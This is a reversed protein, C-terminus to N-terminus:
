QIRIDFRGDTVSISRSPEFIDGMNFQFTGSIIKNSLDFRTIIVSGTQSSSTLYEEKPTLIRKVYYAYNAVSSPYSTNANLIYTGPGTIGKISIEFETETPSSSIDMANIYLDTSGLVRAELIDNSPIGAFGKPIWNVGNVKAGFTNAGTQTAPPLEAVEKKCSVLLFAALAVPVIKKM